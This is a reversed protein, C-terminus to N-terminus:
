VAMPAIVPGTVKPMASIRQKGFWNFKPIFPVGHQRAYWWRLGGALVAATSLSALLIKHRKVVARIKYFRRQLFTLNDFYDVVRQHTKEVAFDRPTKGDEDRSYIDAGAEVLYKAVEFEGEEAALSLPTQCNSSYGSEIDANHDILYKVADLKGFFARDGLAIWSDEDVGNIDAGNALKEDALNFDSNRVADMFEKTVQSRTDEAKVFGAFSCLLAALLMSNLIKNM